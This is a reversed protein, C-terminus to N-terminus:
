IILYIISYHQMMPMLCSAEAYRAFLENDFSFENKNKFDGIQGGGIMDPCRLEQGIWGM